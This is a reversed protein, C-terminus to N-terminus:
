NVSTVSFITDIPYGNYNIGSRGWDTKSCYRSTLSLCASPWLMYQAKDRSYYFNNGKVEVM